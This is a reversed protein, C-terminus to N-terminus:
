VKKKKRRGGLLNIPKGVNHKTSQVYEVATIAQGAYVQQRVTAKLGAFVEVGPVWGILLFTTDSQKNVRWIANARKPNTVNKVRVLSQDPITNAATTILGTTTNLSLLLVPQVTPDLGYINWGNGPTTLLNAVANLLTTNSGTPKWLGGKNVDDDELGGFWQNTFSTLSRLRLQVKTTPYDASSSASVTRPLKGTYIPQTVRFKGVQSIRYYPCFCPNAKYANIASLLAAAKPLVDSFSTFSSWFNESWGGTKSVSQQWFYSVRFM